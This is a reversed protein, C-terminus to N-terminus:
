VPLHAEDRCTHREAAGSDWHLGSGLCSRHERQQSLGMRGMNEGWSGPGAEVGAQQVDQGGGHAAGQQSGKESAATELGM